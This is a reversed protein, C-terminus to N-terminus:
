ARARLCMPERLWFVLSYFRREVQSTLGQGLTPVPGGVTAGGRDRAFFSNRLTERGERVLSDNSLFLLDAEAGFQSEVRVRM